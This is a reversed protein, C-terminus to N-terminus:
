IDDVNDFMTLLGRMAGIRVAAVMMWWYGNHSHYYMIMISPYYSINEQIDGSLAMDVYSYYCVAFGDSVGADGDGNNHRVGDKDNKESRAIMVMAIILIMMARIAMVM